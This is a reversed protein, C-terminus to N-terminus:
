RQHLQASYEIIQGFCLGGDNMPVQRNLHVTFDLAELRRIVRECLIRNQFVGGCLGVAQWPYQKRIQLAQQIVSEAMSTHFLAAAEATRGPGCELVAEIVAQWDSIWLGDADRRLKSEVRGAEEGDALAELWMPGQGEFSATQCIGTLAAVADFLRGASSTQLTNVRQKWAHHLLELDSDSRGPPRWNRGMEWCLAVASRWPERAAKDGGPLHFPRLTATRRWQGPRGCLAEGGWLTGDEGLGIGDWAFVLWREVEPYEGALASAHSAHHLVRTVPRGCDNAWRTPAYGTHADCVVAEAAVGYLAQLDEIVREFIKLSRTSGMDGIHPSIVVRNDWALAVCNKMQGGVALCPRSLHFPLSLERPACGRGLRLPRGHGAIYRFLSDDAPRVIPRDHELFTSTIHALKRRATGNGTIVPEGGLNGSTAVAPAGFRKLLLWHLPSYPLMAGILNLSPAVMPSLSCQEKRAVLVIPREPSLLLRQEESDAVLEEQLHRLPDDLPAPFMVALPKEPRPKASRLRSIANGDRADCMLHYGGVGKVAVIDGRRLATVTDDLAAEDRSKKGSHGDVFTIRPGCRPCAVPEAHFRRDAPNAYERSCEPCLDFAAMSTNPRDYPLATILTYRPGCQTCNIFPYLYRRNAPDSLERLCDDCTFYDPPLHIAMEGGTESTRITFRDAGVSLPVQKVDLLEPRAIPPALEMLARGFAEQARHDGETHIEVQGVRNLVWGTLGLGTAIRFVFPRFGVGQVRGGLLWERAERTQAAPNITVVMSM